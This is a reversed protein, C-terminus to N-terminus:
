DVVGRPLRKPPAPPNEVRTVKMGLDHAVLRAIALDAMGNRLAGTPVHGLELYHEAMQQAFAELQHDECEWRGDSVMMVGRPGAITVHMPKM